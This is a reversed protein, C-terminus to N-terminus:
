FHLVGKSTQEVNNLGTLQVIWVYIGKPQDRGGYTGDWGKNIDTTEFVKEGYRNFVSLRFVKVPLFYKARFVDNIGDGNPTFANPLMLSCIGAKILIDASFSGCINSAQLSYFGTDKVVLTARTSGDQWLYNAPVNLQPQL